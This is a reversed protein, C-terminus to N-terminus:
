PRKGPTRRFLIPRATDYGLDIRNAGRPTLHFWGDPPGFRGGGLDELALVQGKPLEASCRGGACRIRWTVGLEVSRYAGPLILTHSPAKPPEAPSSSPAAPAAPALQHGLALETIWRDEAIPSLADSNCLVTVTARLDPFRQVSAKFGGYNGTHGIRRQGRYTRVFLGAAHPTAEGSRLTNVRTMLEILPAGGGLRNDYFNADWLALDRLTTVVGGDGVIDISSRDREPAGAETSTYGFAMREAREDADDLLFTDTMGLPRFIRHEMFARLSMGSIKEVIRGLLFYGSNSYSARTGPDFELETRAIVDFLEDASYYDFPTLGRLEQVQLYDRIGSSHYVLDAVTIRRGWDPLGDLYESIPSDLRVRGDEQLLLVAFATFQKSVSAIAMRSSPKLPAGAEVDALGFAAELEPRGNRLIGIVCGPAQAPLREAARRHLEAAYPPDGGSQDTRAAAGAPFNVMGASLLIALDLRLGARV